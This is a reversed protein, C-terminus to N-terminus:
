FRSKLTRAHRGMDTLLTRLMLLMFSVKELDGLKKSANSAMANIGDVLRRVNDDFTEIKRKAADHRERAEGVRGGLGAEQLGEKDFGLVREEGVAEVLLALIEADVEKRAAWLEAMRTEYDGTHKEFADMVDGLEQGNVQFAALPNLLEAEDKQAIEM